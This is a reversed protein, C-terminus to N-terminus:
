LNYGKPKLFLAWVKEHNYYTKEALSVLTVIKNYEKEVWSVSWASNLTDLDRENSSLM